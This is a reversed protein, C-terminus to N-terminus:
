TLLNNYPNNIKVISKKSTENIIFCKVKEEFDDRKESGIQGYKINLLEDFNRVNKIIEKKM